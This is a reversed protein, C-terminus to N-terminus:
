ESHHPKFPYIDFSQIDINSFNQFLIERQPTIAIIAVGFKKAMEKLKDTKSNFIVTAVGDLAAATIGNKIITVSSYYHNSKASSNDLIHHNEKSGIFREYDGSTSLSIFKKSSKIIGINNNSFPDRIAINYKKGFSCIEGGVSVLAKTAGRKLLHQIIKDCVFGKGIAGLDLKMGKKSLYIENQNIQMFKYNVLKKTELLERKTPIKSSQTGFGYLDQTLSGITPDFVGDSKKAMKLAIKFIELEDNTCTVNEKGSARNIKSLLSDNKYASYKKEFELALDLCEYLIKKSVNSRILLETTMVTAKLAKEFLAM